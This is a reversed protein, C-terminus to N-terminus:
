EVGSEQSRRSPATLTEEVPLRLRFLAGGGPAAEVTVGGGHSEAVQRVIALGLGSGPRGRAADARYFRDFIHGRDEAPIGPGRDRVTLEGDHVRVEVTGGRPSWKAANDLLNGIARELTSPVGRMPSEHLDTEFTVGPRNRGVRQVAAETVLDLRVDEPEGVHQEGRALEMLETIIATMEGLQELVDAILREREGPPM